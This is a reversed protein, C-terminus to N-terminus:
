CYIHCAPEQLRVQYEARLQVGMEGPVNWRRERLAVWHNEGVRITTITFSYGRNRDIHRELSVQMYGWTLFSAYLGIASIALEVARAFGAM